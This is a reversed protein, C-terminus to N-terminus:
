RDTERPQVAAPWGPLQDICAGGAAAQFAAPFDPNQDFFAAIPDKIGPNDPIRRLAKKIQEAPIRVRSRRSSDDSDAAIVLELLFLLRLLGYQKDAESQQAFEDWGGQSLLVRKVVRSNCQPNDFLNIILIALRSKSTAIMRGLQLAYNTHYAPSDHLLVKRLSDPLPWRRILSSNMGLSALFSVVFWADEDIPPRDAPKTGNVLKVIADIAEDTVPEDLLRRLDNLERSGQDFLTRWTKAAGYAIVTDLSRPGPVAVNLSKLTEGLEVPSLEQSPQRDRSSMGPVYSVSRLVRGPEPFKNTTVTAYNGTTLGAFYACRPFGLRQALRLRIPTNALPTKADAAFWDPHFWPEPPDANAWALICGAMAGALPGIEGGFDKAGGPAWLIIRELQEFLGTVPKRPFPHGHGLLRNLLGHAVMLLRRTLEATLKISTDPKGLRDNFVPIFEMILTEAPTRPDTVAKQIWVFLAKSLQDTLVRHDGGPALQRLDPLAGFLGAAAKAPDRDLPAITQACANFLDAAATELKTRDRPQNGAAEDDQGCTQFLCRLPESLGAQRTWLYLALVIGDRWLLCDTDRDAALAWQWYGRLLVKLYGERQAAFDRRLAEDGVDIKLSQAVVRQAAVVLGQQGTPVRARSWDYLNAAILLARLTQALAKTHAPADGPRAVLFQPLSEALDIIALPRRILIWDARRRLQELRDKVAPSAIAQEVLAADTPSEARARQMAQIVARLESFDRLYGIDRPQADAPDDALRSGSLASWRLVLRASDGL